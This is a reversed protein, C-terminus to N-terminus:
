RIDVFFFMLEWQSGQTATPTPQLLATCAVYSCQRPRVLPLGLRLRLLSPLRGVRLLRLLQEVALQQRLLCGRRKSPTAYPLM